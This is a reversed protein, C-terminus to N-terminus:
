KRAKKITLFSKREERNIQKGIKTLTSEPSGIKNLQKYNMVTKIKISWNWIQINSAGELQKRHEKSM